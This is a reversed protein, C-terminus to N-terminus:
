VSLCVSLYVFVWGERVWEGRGEGLVCVGIPSCEPLLRTMELEARFMDM